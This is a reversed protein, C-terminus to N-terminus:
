HARLSAAQRALEEIAASDGKEVAEAPAVWSGGVCLVNPLALYERANALSIGGTPCFRFQPLPSSLAKLYPAGGAVSAPFFKLHRYGREGLAMIESATATGPLLPVSSDDAADLLRPSTGPSVMFKAGAATVAEIQAPELVTGAGPIAGEVEAAIAALCELARPTRLTVEIAPLGGAVLARAMMVAKRPDDIIVVPIVPAAKMMAELIKQKANQSTSM